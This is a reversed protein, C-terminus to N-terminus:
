FGYLFPIFMNKVEFLSDNIGDFHKQSDEKMSALVAAALNEQSLIMKFIYYMFVFTVWNDTWCSAIYTWCFFSIVTLHSALDGENESSFPTLTM